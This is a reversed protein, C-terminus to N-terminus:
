VKDFTLQFPARRACGERAASAIARCDSDSVEDTFGLNQMTLHLWSLPVMDLGAVGQLRRQYAAVLRRLEGAGDVSADEFTVHFTYARRGLRWGPRWWWHDRVTREATPQTGAVDAM